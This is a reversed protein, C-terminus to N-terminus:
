RQAYLVAHHVVNCGININYPMMASPHPYYVYVEIELGLDYAKCVCTETPGIDNLELVKFVFVKIGFM